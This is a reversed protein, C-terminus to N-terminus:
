VNVQFCFTLVCMGIGIILPSCVCLAPVPWLLSGGVFFALLTVCTIADPSDGSVCQGTGTKDTVELVCAVAAVITALIFALVWFAAWPVIWICLVVRVFWFQVDNPISFERAGIKFHLLVDSYTRTPGYTPSRCAM